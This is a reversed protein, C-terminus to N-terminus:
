QAESAPRPKPLPSGKIYRNAFELFVPWNPGDTHGGGHQRFAVDGEM